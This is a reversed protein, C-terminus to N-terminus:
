WSGSLRCDNKGTFASQMSALRSTLRSGLHKALAEKDPAYNSTVITHLRSNYRENVIRCLTEKAYETPREAGLDLVLTKITCYLQIRPEHTELSIGERVWALLDPVTVFRCSNETMTGKYFGAHCIAAALHTKGTGPMGYYFISTGNIAAETYSHVTNPARTFDFAQLTATSYREPVGIKCLIAPINQRTVELAKKRELECRAAAEAEKLEQERKACHECTM